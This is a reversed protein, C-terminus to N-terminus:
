EIRNLNKDYMEDLLDVWRKHKDQQDNTGNKYYSMVDFHEEPM